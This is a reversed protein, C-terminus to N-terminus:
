RGALDVLNITAKKEMEKGAENLQKQIFRCYHEPQNDTESVFKSKFVARIVMVTTNLITSYM